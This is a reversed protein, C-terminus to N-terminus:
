GGKGEKAEQLRKLEARARHVRTWVTKENIGLAAAIEAAELGNVMRLLLVERAGESLGAFLGELELRAEAAGASEVSEPQAQGWLAGLLRQLRGRRGHELVKRLAIGALFGRFSGTEQYRRAAGPLTLFVESLADEAAARDRLRHSLV